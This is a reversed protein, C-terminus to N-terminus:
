YVHHFNQVLAQDVSWETYEESHDGVNRGHDLYLYFFHTLYSEKHKFLLRNLEVDENDKVLGSEITEFCPLM